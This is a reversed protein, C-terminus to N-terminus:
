SLPTPSFERIARWPGGDPLAHVYDYYKTRHLEIEAASMVSGAILGNHLRIHAYFGPSMNFVAYAHRPSTRWHERADASDLLVLNRFNGDALQQSCYALVYPHRPFEAILEDDMADMPVPDANPRRTGCFGVVTVPDCGLLRPVDNVVLRLNLGHEDKQWVVYPRPSGPLGGPARLLACLKARTARLIGLDIQSNEPQTFPRDALCQTAHLALCDDM